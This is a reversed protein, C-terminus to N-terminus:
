VDSEYRRQVHKAGDGVMWEIKTREQCLNCKKGGFIVNNIKMDEYEQM